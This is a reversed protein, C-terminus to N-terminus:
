QTQPMEHVPHAVGPLLKGDGTFVRITKGEKGFCIQQGVAVNVQLSDPGYPMRLGYQKGGTGFIVLRTRRAINPQPSQGEDARAPASAGPSVDLVKVVTASQYGAKCEASVSLTWLAFVSLFCIYKNM